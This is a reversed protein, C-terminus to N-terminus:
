KMYMLGIMVDQASANDVSFTLYYLYTGDNNAIQKCFALVRYRKM